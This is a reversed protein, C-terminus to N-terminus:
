EYEHTRQYPANEEADPTLVNNFNELSKGIPTSLMVIVENKKHKGKKSKLEKSDKKIFKQRLEQLGAFDM